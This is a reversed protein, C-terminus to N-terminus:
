HVGAGGRPELARGHIEQLAAAGLFGVGPLGLSRAAVGPTAPAPRTDPGHDPPPPRAARHGDLGPACGVTAAAPDGSAAPGTPRGLTQDGRHQHRPRAELRQQPM